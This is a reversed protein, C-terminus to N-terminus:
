RVTQLRRRVRIDMFLHGLTRGVQVLNKWRIARSRRGERPPDIRLAIEVFSKGASVFKERM